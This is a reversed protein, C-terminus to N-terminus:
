WESGCIIWTAFIRDTDQLFATEGGPYHMFAVCKCTKWDAGPTDPACEGTKSDVPCCNLLGFATALPFANGQARCSRDSVASEYWQAFTRSFRPGDSVHESASAICSKENSLQQENFFAIYLYDKLASPQCRESPFAQLESPACAWGEMWWPAVVSWDSRSNRFHRNDTVCSLLCIMSIAMLICFYASFLPYPRIRDMSRCASRVTLSRAHSASALM